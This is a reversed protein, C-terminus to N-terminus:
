VQKRESRTDGSDVLGISRKERERERVGESHIDCCRSSGYPGRMERAQCCKVCRRGEGRVGDWAVWWAGNDSRGSDFM